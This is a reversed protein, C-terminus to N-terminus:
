DMMRRAGPPSRKEDYHDNDAATNPSLILSRWLLAFLHSWGFIFHEFAFDIRRFERPSDFPEVCLFWNRQSFQSALDYKQIEPGIAADVAHVDNGIQLLEFCFIGLLKDNDAHM